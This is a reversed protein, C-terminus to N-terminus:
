FGFKEAFEAAEERSLGPHNRVAMEIPDCADAIRPLTRTDLLAEIRKRSGKLNSRRRQAIWDHLEQDDPDRGHEDIFAELSAQESDEHVAGTKEKRKM